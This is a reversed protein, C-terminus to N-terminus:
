GRLEGLKTKRIFSLLLTGVLGSLWNGSGWVIADYFWWMSWPKGEHNSFLNGLLGPVAIWGFGFAGNVFIFPWFKPILRAALPVSLLVLIPGMVFPAILLRLTSASYIGVLVSVLRAAFFSLPAVLLCAVLIQKQFTQRQIWRNM